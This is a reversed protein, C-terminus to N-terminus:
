IPIMAIKFKKGTRNNIMFIDEEGEQLTWDGWSGDIDNTKGKNSFHMDNVYLNAWRKSASGLDISNTSSPLLSNAIASSIVFSSAHYGDVTDANTSSSSLQLGTVIFESSAGVITTTGSEDVTNTRIRLVDNASLYLTTDVTASGYRGWSSKIDNVTFYFDRDRLVDATTGNDGEYIYLRFATTSQSADRVHIKIDDRSSGEQVQANVVYNADPMATSFTITYDGTGNRTVSFGEGKIKNGNSNVHGIIIPEIQPQIYTYQDASSITSGNKQLETKITNRRSTAASQYVVSAKVTYWGTELVTIAGASHSFKSSDTNSEQNFNIVAASSSVAATTNSKLHCVFHGGSSIGTLASGDIAPLTGTLNAADLYYSGEQGDLKDSDLGSSAGDNAEHWVKYFTGDIGYKLGNSGNQIRLGEGTEENILDLYGNDNWQIYAKRTTDEFFAIYPDTAGKLAIKGNHDGDITLPYQSNTTLSLIGTTTDDQDARLFQTSDIGDLLAANGGDNAGALAASTIYGAGNTLQNNNTVNTASAAIGDLKNKLATTFNEDTQSAVTFNLKGSTDNYNVTIGSETNGSGVMGGVIDQVQENSLQTNTDTSAFNLKGNTDDYTVSINTETNSEVMAGVIDQVQENSLQTNTNTPTGWSTNGNADVTLYKGSQIDTPFTFTYSAGASHPPSKLKIGHSNESCNLQIYGDTSGSTGKAELSPATTTSILNLKAITVADDAIRATGITGSNLNSANRYYSGEQGDLKDADLGSGAGDNGAHFVKYGDIKVIGSGALRDINLDEGSNDHILKWYATGNLTFILSDRGATDFDFKLNNGNCNFTDSTDSRLFSTSQIGDVTDADLGNGTGEDATSLIRSGNVKLVGGGAVRDINLDQGSNDHLFQWYTSGSLNFVISNRGTNDFNFGLANGNCDFSDTADARLFGASSIGDLTDADLGSGAGDVTKLLTLIESATQDATAGSEIGDLKTGDAAVDRGDINGDCSINGTVDIGTATTSLRTTAGHKFQCSGGTNFRAMSRANATDYLTINTGNTQISLSGGGNEKIISNGNSSQHFIQLDDSDGLKVIADDPLDLHSTGTIIGTVDLGAGVDLNSSFSAAGYFTHIMGSSAIAYRTQPNDIDRIIFSGNQNRIEFDNESDTDNLLITPLDSSIQLQGTTTINGTVDLGANADLNVNIDVASSTITMRNSAATVDRFRLTGDANGIQYDPNNNNDTLTLSPSSNNILLNGTLTGGALPLKTAISNTVTTSFNADDGLAAALENLTNLASPSSDVLNSIATDTYATTAVKTSNDGASQTTATVGNTLVGSSSTLGGFLTDRTAIDVGDVTGTVTIDGTVDIGASFDHNIKSAIVAGNTSFLENSNTQDVIKFLGNANEISFDNNNNLDTLFLKPHTNQITVNSTFVPSIKTGAIAASADVQANVIGNSNLLTKIEAATQDATANSEIGSLKTFDNATMLGSNSADAEPLTVNTGTSSELVRTSATYSLNTVTDVSNTTIGTILGQENVTVAPIATASGYTGSSVGSAALKTAAINANSHLDANIISGDKIGNSSVQTLAM